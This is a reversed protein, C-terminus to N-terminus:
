DLNIVFILNKNNMQSSHKVRTWIILANAADFKVLAAREGEENREGEEKVGRGEAVVEM